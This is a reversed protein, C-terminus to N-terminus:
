LLEKNALFNKSVNGFSYELVLRTWKNQNWKENIIVVLSAMQGLDSQLGLSSWTLPVM